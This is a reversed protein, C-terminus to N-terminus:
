SQSSVPLTLTTDTDTVSYGTYCGMGVPLFPATCSSTVAGATAPTKSFPMDRHARRATGFGDDCHIDALKRISARFKMVQAHSGRGIEEPHFHLNQLFIVSGVVPDACFDEVEQGVSQILFRVPRGLKKSLIQAVPKLSYKKVVRGKPRGFHSALVVSKAGKELVEEIIPVLDEIKKTSKIKAPDKKSHPVNLDVCMFVRKSTVVVNPVQPLKSGM